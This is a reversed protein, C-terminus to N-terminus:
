SDLRRPPEEGSTESDTGEDDLVAVNGEEISSAASLEAVAAAAPVPAPKQPDVEGRCFAECAARAAMEVTHSGLEVRRKPVNLNVSPDFVMGVAYITPGGLTYTGLYHQGEIVAAATHTIQSSWVIESM